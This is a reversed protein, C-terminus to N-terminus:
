QQEKLRAIAEQILRQNDKDDLSKSFVEVGLRQIIEGAQTWLQDEAESRERQLEAQARLKMLETEKLHKQQLERAQQEADKLRASIIDRGQREADALKAAYEDLTKRADLRTKEADGIQREIYEQRSNLGNLLPKWAFKWLVVLLVAFWILAWFSEGLYGDFVSPEPPALDEVAFAPATLLLVTWLVLSVRM